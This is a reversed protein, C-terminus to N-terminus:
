CVHIYSQIYIYTHMCRQIWTNSLIKIKNGLKENNGMVVMQFILIYIINAPKRMKVFIVCNTSINSSLNANYMLKATTVTTSLPLTLKIIYFCILCITNLYIFRKGLFWLMFISYYHNHIFDSCWDPYLNLIHSYLKMMFAFKFCSVPSFHRHVVGTTWCFDSRKIVFETQPSISLFCVASITM